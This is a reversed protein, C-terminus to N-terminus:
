TQTEQIGNSSRKPPLMCLLAWLWFFTPFTLAVFPWPVNLRNAILKGFIISMPVGIIISLICFIIIHDRLTKFFKAAARATSADAASARGKPDDAM